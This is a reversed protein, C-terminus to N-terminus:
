KGFPLRAVVHERLWDEWAFASTECADVDVDVDIGIDVVKAFDIRLPGGKRRSWNKGIARALGGVRPHLREALTTPGLELFTLRPPKGRRVEMILGDIKGMKRGKNDVLQNDLVDRIADM